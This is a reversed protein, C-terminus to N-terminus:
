PQVIQRLVQQDEESIDVIQFGTWFTGSSNADECWLSEAILRISSDNLGEASLPITLHYTRGTALPASSVLMLGEESINVLQGLLVGSSTESVNLNEMIELRPKRRQDRSNQESKAM